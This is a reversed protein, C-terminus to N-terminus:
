SLISVKDGKYFLCVCLYVEENWKNEFRITEKSKRSILEVLEMNKNWKLM